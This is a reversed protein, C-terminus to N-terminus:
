PQEGTYPAFRVRLPLSNADVWGPDDLPEREAQWREFTMGGFWGAVALTFWILTSLRFRTRSMHPM